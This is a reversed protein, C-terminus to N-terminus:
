IIIYKGVIYVDECCNRTFQYCFKIQILHIFKTEFDILIQLNKLLKPTNKLFNYYCIPFLTQFLADSCSIPCHHWGHDIGAIDNDLRGFM